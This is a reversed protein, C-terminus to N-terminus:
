WGTWTIRRATWRLRVTRPYYFDASAIPAGDAEILRQAETPLPLGVDRIAHLVRRQLETQCRALLAAFHAEQDSAIEEVSVERLRRLLPTVARRDLHEHDLQNYFNCLCEYCARERANRRATTSCNSRVPWSSGCGLRRESRPSRAPAAPRSKTCCSGSGARQADGPAPMLFGGLEGDDLDLTLAIAQRFVHLLTTYFDQADVPPDAPLPVDLVLVDTETQTYLRLGRHNALEAPPVRKRATAAPRRTAAHKEVAQREDALCPLTSLYHLRSAKRTACAGTSRLLDHRRARLDAATAQEGVQLDFAEAPGNPRYHYTIEYGKRLREEEDVTINASRRGFADPSRMAPGPHSPTLDHGCGCTPPIAAADLYIAQCAPCILLSQIDLGRGQM